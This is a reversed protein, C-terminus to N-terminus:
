KEGTPHSDPVPLKELIEPVIDRTSLDRLRAQPSVIMRHALAPLAVVKVDDPWIKM